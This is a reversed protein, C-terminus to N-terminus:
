SRGKMQKSVNVCSHIRIGTGKGKELVYSLTEPNDVCPKTNAMLVIQTFGGKKAAASGTDIDEKHTFGPDRFHVHTDALGPAICLGSVDLVKAGDPIEVQDLIGAKDSIEVEDQSGAKDFFEAKKELNGKEPYMGEPLPIIKQIRGKEILLDAPYMRDSEPDIIIGGKMYLIQEQM